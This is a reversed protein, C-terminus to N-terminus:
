TLVLKVKRVGNPPFRIIRREQQRMRNKTEKCRKVDEDRDEDGAKRREM